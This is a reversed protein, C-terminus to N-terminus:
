FVVEKRGTVSPIAYLADELNERTLIQAGYNLMEQAWTNAKDQVVNELLYVTRGLRLAEWGQHRTGSNEKAEIIITADSILAMTRNRVPFNKKQFPYNEPFQSIALHNAKISELLDTNSKPYVQSLPTGLVAITKGGNEISTRHAITDVGEALGSVVTIEHKVLARTLSQARVIGAPSVDRSGVVSVRIGELLLNIDGECFLIEPANKTESTTLEGLTEKINIQM